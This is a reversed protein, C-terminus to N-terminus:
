CNLKIDKYKNTALAMGLGTHLMNSYTQDEEFTLEGVVLFQVTTTDKLVQLPKERPVLEMFLRCGLYCLHLDCKNLDEYHTKGLTALTSWVM